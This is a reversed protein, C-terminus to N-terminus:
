KLKECQFGYHFVFKTLMASHINININYSRGIKETQVLHSRHFYIHLHERGSDSFVGVMGAFLVFHELDPKDRLLLDSALSRVPSECSM